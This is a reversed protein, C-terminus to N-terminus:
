PKTIESEFTGFTTETKIISGKKLDTKKKILKGDITTISYGRKLVNIPDVLKIIKEHQDIKQHLKEFASKVSFLLDGQLETVNKSALKIRQFSNSKLQIQNQRLNIKESQMRMKAQGILENLTDRLQHNKEAFAHKTAIKFQNTLQMFSKKEAAVIALPETLILREAEQVPVAFDHFRQILFSGLETPTIGSQFAVM